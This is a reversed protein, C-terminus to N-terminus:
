SIKKIYIHNIDLEPNLPCPEEFAVRFEESIELNKAYELASLRMMVHWRNDGPVLAEPPIAMSYAENASLNELTRMTEENLKWIVMYTSM